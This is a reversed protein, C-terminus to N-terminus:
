TGEPSKEHKEKRIKAKEAIEALNLGIEKMQKRYLTKSVTVIKKGNDETTEVSISDPNYQNEVSYSVGWDWMSEIPFYAGKAALKVECKRIEAEVFDHYMDPSSHYVRLTGYKEKVQSLRLLAKSRKNLIPNLYLVKAARAGYGFPRFFSDAVAKLNYILGREKYFESKKSLFYYSLTKWANMWPDITFCKLPNGQIYYGRLTDENRRIGITKDLSEMLELVEPAWAVPCDPGCESRDFFRKELKKLATRNEPTDWKDDYTVENNYM